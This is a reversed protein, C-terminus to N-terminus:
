DEPVSAYCRVGFLAAPAADNMELCEIELRRTVLKEAPVIRRRSLHNENVEAIIRGTEDKVLFHKLCFPMATEPQTILFCELPNDFDTDFALDICGIEQPAAWELVVTPHPDATDAVWANPQSTPRDIGSILNAPSFVDLDPYVRVALNQGEPRRQPCWFEFEEVGFDGTPVQKGFNSVSPNIKNAVSLIGTLRQKSSRISVLPNRLFCIFAYQPQDLTTNFVLKVEQEGQNLQICRTELIRDPTFDGPKSGTRLEVQIETAERVNLWFMLSPVSGASLPLMQAWSSDLALWTGDPVLQSLVLHSSASIRAQPALDAPDSLASAPIFQGSRLLSTQLRGIWPTRSIDAPLLQHHICLTAAMGVAQAAQALTAQVRTTGFAVHSASIIRGALFLNSINHSYLCRYPIQYIGRGHWQICGPKESFVGDAPHLDLAWGGYSVADAFSTQEIVDQQRLIYDGEFRRSERKGPITGVWELTLNEAEPFLGSNKIHNWVGYVIKWLEWKITQSDHITDLRGGYEIWWLRNGYDGANFNRWRPIRTIDKLAFSPPIFRVPRGTDKSYFYITHGLLEGYEQSPALKEGFEASSEAGMRFAAGALFGVLGDGSADCYLPAQIEYLTSNQSCFAMVGAIKDPGAKIVEYVATDLLLQINPESVVKDLLIIDFISPNGQPNRYANELLIEDIVGGERAWRNNNGMHSTAGVIWMRVESSANGGLVPRDQILAVRIGTRAATIACCLGAMGGGIVALDCKIQVLKLDRRDEPLAIQM